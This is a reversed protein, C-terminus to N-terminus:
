GQQATTGLTALGGVPGARARSDGKARARAAEEKAEELVLRRSPVIARRTDMSEATTAIVKSVAEAREKEKAM